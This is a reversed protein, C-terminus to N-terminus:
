KIVEKRYNKQLKYIKGNIRLYILLKIKKCCLMRTIKFNLIIDCATPCPSAGTRLLNSTYDLRRVVALTTGVSQQYIIIQPQLSISFKACGTLPSRRDGALEYCILFPRVCNAWKLDGNNNDNSSEM